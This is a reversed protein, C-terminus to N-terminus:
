ADKPQNDVLDILAVGRFPVGAEKLMSHGLDFDAQWRKPIEREEYVVEAIGVQILNRTCRSCSPWGTYATCGVLSTGTINANLIANEEAHVILPYKKERDELRDDDAM